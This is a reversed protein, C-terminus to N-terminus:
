ISPLAERAINTDCLLPLIPHYYPTFSVEIQGDEQLRRYVPVIRAILKIEWDLLAHKDEETFHREKAFLMRVPAEDRFFPDVWSLNSWVQLDRMESSSFLSTQNVITGSGQKAKGYLQKYRPYPNIMHTPNGAFFTDLIEAKQTPTLSDAAMRSLELHRDVAGKTYAELQDLLSPVLNFTLRLSEFTGARLPMDLYDKLAHLRAWPMSLRNSNPERYDPQHMHWLIAVRIPTTQSM